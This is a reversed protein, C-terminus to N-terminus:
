PNGKWLPAKAHKLADLAGAMSSSDYPIAHRAALEAMAAKLDADLTFRQGLRVLEYGLPVLKKAEPKGNDTPRSARAASGKGIGPSAQVPSPYTSKLDSNLEANLESRDSKLDSNLEANLESKLDSNRADAAITGREVRWPPAQGPHKALYRLQAYRPANPWLDHIAYRGPSREDVFGADVLLQVLVDPDGLWYVADAVDAPSGVYDSVANYGAEWLLELMGRAIPEAGTLTPPQLGAIARVLRRFKWHGPLSIRAM